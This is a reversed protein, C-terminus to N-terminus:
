LANIFLVNYLLYFVPAAVAVSDVSDLIGGRGLMMNGSDKFGCSRKIGSEVLDGLAGMIGTCLGLIIIAALLPMSDFRLVFASPVFQMVGVSIVISGIAGGIFGAISKNPSVPIIGRNGKGLLMGLAWAGSDCFITVLLFFLIIVGSHEWASMMVLWYMFAGPYIMVSFGAAIRGIINEVNKIPSFACPLLILSAGTMLVLPATWSPTNFVLIITGALPALAGLIAAATKSIYLNKTKLMASFEVAAISSFATLVINLALNNYFPLFLVIIVVLPVGIFFVLLRQVLKSM